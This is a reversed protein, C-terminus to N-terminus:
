GKSQSRLFYFKLELPNVGDPGVDIVHGEDLCCAPGQREIAGNFRRLAAAAEPSLEDRNKALIEEVSQCDRLNDTARLDVLDNRILDAAIACFKATEFLTTKRLAQLGHEQWVAHFDTLFDEAIKHRSGLKRGDGNWGKIFRGKPDSYSVIQASSQDDSMTKLGIVFRTERAEILRLVEVIGVLHRKAGTTAKDILDVELSDGRCSASCATGTGIGL